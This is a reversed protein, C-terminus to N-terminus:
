SLASFVAEARYGFMLLSFQHCFNIFLRTNEEEYKLLTVSVTLLSNHLDYFGPAFQGTPRIPHPGSGPRRLPRARSKIFLNVDGYSM